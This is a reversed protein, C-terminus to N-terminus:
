KKNIATYVASFDEDGKTELVSRYMADSAATTPLELGLSQSLELALRMDKQAHKLPFHTPFTGGMMNPGKMKFMPNAMAGQDLVQLLVDQPLNAANCLAMGESFAGMMTGMIM